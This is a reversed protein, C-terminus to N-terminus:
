IAVCRKSTCILILLHAHPFTNFLFISYIVDHPRPSKGSPVGPDQSTPGGAQAQSSRSDTIDESPNTQVPEQLTDATSAWQPELNDEDSDDTAEDAEEEDVVHDNDEDDDDEIGLGAYMDYEPDSHIGPVQGYNPCAPHYRSNDAIKLSGASSNILTADDYSQTKCGFTDVVGFTPRAMRPDLCAIGWGRSEPVTLLTIRKM